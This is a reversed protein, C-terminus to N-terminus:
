SSHWRGPESLKVNFHFVLYTYLYGWFSPSHFCHLLETSFFCVLWQFVSVALFFLNSCRCAKKPPFHKPSCFSGCLEPLTSLLAEDRSDEPRYFSLCKECSGSIVPWNWSFTVFSLGPALVPWKLSVSAFSAYCATDKTFGVERGVDSGRRTSKNTLAVILRLFPFTGCIDFSMPQTGAQHVIRERWNWYNCRIRDIWLSNRKKFKVKTTLNVM